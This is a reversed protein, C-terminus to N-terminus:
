VTANKNRSRTSKKKENKKGGEKTNEANLKEIAKDKVDKGIYKENQKIILEAMEAIIDDMNEEKEDIEKEIETRAEEVKEQAKQLAKEEIAKDLEKMKKKLVDPATSYMENYGAKLAKDLGFVEAEDRNYAMYLLEVLENSTLVKGRVGCVSISRIISQARTYLESFAIGRLEEKDLNESGAETSFYPIIIYYKKNLINKNLSMRETDQLVSRGYEYLNTQKTLEFYAKALQEESYEESELMQQYQMQMRNLKTEVERVRERYGELSSELDISRTQIYIQIKYRLSNLFQVFGEEVSTKEIGSMLDYNIGQCEIAMLFRSHNKQIIMNDIVEDFEMFKFISQKNQMNNTATSTTGTGKTTQKEIQEKNKNKSYAYVLYGILAFIVLMIPILIYTLMNVLELKSQSDM